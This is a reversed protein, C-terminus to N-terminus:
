QGLNTQNSQENPIFKAHEKFNRGEIDFQKMSAHQM